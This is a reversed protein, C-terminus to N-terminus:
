RDPADGWAEVLGDRLVEVNPSAAFPGGAPWDQVSGLRYDAYLTDHSCWARELRPAEARASREPHLLARRTGPFVSISRARAPPLVAGSSLLTTLGSLARVFMAAEGPGYLTSGGEYYQATYEEATTIYELYGNALGLIHAARVSSDRARAAALMEDRMRRGATTTVEGPVTGILRDGLQLVSVQAFVPLTPAVVVKNLWEGFLGDLLERKQAHCGPADPNAAGEDFGIPFTGFLRWGQM